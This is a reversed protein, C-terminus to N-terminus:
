RAEEEKKQKTIQQKREMEERKEERQLRHLELNRERELIAQEQEQRAKFKKLENEMALAIVM